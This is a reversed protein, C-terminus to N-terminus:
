WPVLFYPHNFSPGEQTVNRNEEETVQSSPGRRWHPKSMVRNMEGYDGPFSMSPSGGELELVPLCCLAGVSSDLSPLAIGGPVGEGWLDKWFGPM